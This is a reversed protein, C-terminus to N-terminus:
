ALEGPALVSQISTILKDSELNLITRDQVRQKLLTLEIESM